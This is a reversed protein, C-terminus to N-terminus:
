KQKLTVEPPRLYNPRLTLPEAFQNALALQWGLRHVMSARPSWCEEDFFHVGDAKFKDRHYILGDGLLRIPRERCAFRDLFKKATTISDPFIKNWIGGSTRQYVAIYFRGRKADIIPAIVEHSTSNIGTVNAAIVDLTDVAVIRSSSALNMTKALTVAIRLGTFSGPGVSIYVQEIDNQKRDLRGLLTRVAPFLEASHKMPGSFTAESKLDPGVAVAVSGIRSSTEVALIM